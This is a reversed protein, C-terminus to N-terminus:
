RARAVRGGHGTAARGDRGDAGRPQLDVPHNAAPRPVDYFLGHAGKELIVTRLVAVAIHTKGIGPPGILCLGKDVVPFSAAFQRARAITTVLRENPYLTFSDLTCRAYRPPIRAESSLRASLTQRWCECREVRRVGDREVPRWGTDDCHPCAMSTRESYCKRFDLLRWDARVIAEVRGPLVRVQLTMSCARPPEPCRKYIEKLLGIRTGRSM